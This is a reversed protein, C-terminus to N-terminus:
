LNLTHFVHTCLTCHADSRTVRSGEAVEGGTASEESAPPGSLQELEERRRSDAQSHRSSPLIATVLLFVLSSVIIGVRRTQRAQWSSMPGPRSRHERKRLVPVLAAAVPAGQMSSKSCARITRTFATATAHRRIPSPVAPLTARQGLRGVLVHPWLQQPLVRM